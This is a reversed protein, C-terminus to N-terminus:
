NALPKNCKSCVWKDNIKHCETNGLQTCDCVEGAQENSGIARRECDSNSNISELYMDMLEKFEAFRNKHKKKLWNEFDILEQQFTEM